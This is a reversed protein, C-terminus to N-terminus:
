RNAPSKLKEILKPGAAPSSKKKKKQQKSAPTKAQTPNEYLDNVLDQNTDGLAFDKEDDDPVSHLKLKLSNLNHSDSGSYTDM